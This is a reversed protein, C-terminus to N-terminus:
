YQTEDIEFITAGLTFGKGDEVLMEWNGFVADIRELLESLSDDRRVGASYRFEAESFGEISVSSFITFEATQV